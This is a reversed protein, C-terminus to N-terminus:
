DSSTTVCHSGLCNAKRTAVSVWETMALLALIIRSHKRVTTATMHPRTSPLYAVIDVM